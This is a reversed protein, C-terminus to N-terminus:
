LNLLVKEMGTSLIHTPTPTHTHSEVRKSAIVYYNLPIETFIYSSWNQLEDVHFFFFVKEMWRLIGDQIGTKYM